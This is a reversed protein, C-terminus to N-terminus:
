LEVIQKFNWTKNVNEVNQSSHISSIILNKFHDLPITILKSPAILVFNYLRHSLFM